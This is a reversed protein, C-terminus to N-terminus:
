DCGIKETSPLADFWGKFDHKHASIRQIRELFKDFEKALLAQMAMTSLGFCIGTEVRGESGAYGLEKMCHILIGQNITIPPPTRLSSFLQAISEFM